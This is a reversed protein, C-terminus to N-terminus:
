RQIDEVWAELRHEHEPITVIVLVDGPELITSGRPILSRDARRVLICLFEEPVGVTKLSKMALRDHEPRIEIEVKVSDRHDPPLAVTTRDLLKRNEEALEGYAWFVERRRLVGLLKSTEERHVVPIQGVDHTEIKRLVTRLTQDPTCTILSRTMIDAVTQDAVSGAMLAAEVDYESVIGALRGEEDLVCCSRTHSNHLRTALDQVPTEGDVTEHDTAMADMVLIFDLAGTEEPERSFGGLRRLKISYISDEKLSSAILYAVVVAIMLPLIIQYDDTMEFLILIATMPAHACGAFVAGMGVLAYAGPPAVAEPFIANVLIGFGGGVMAGIFISPAFVGGSGGAALTTSTALIKMLILLLFASITLAGTLGWDIPGGERLGLAAEIGDYGVGFLYHGGGTFSMALYGLGGVALGGLIAKVPAPWKWQAFLHEEYYLVRVFTISVIGAVLGLGV